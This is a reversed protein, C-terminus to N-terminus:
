NLLYLFINLVFILEHKNKSAIMESKASAFVVYIISSNSMCTLIEKIKYYTITIIYIDM